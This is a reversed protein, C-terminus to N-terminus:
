GDVFRCKRRNIISFVKNVQPNDEAKPGDLEDRHHDVHPAHPDHRPAPGDQVDAAPPARPGLVRHAFGILEM